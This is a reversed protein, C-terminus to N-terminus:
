SIKKRLTAFADPGRSRIARPRRTPLFRSPPCMVGSPLLTPPLFFNRSSGRAGVVVREHLDGHPGNVRASVLDKVAGARRERLVLEYTTLSDLAVYTHLHARPARRLHRPFLGGNGFSSAGAYGVFKDSENRRALGRLECSARRGGGEARGGREDWGKFNRTIM